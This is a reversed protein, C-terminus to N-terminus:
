GARALERKARFYSKSQGRGWRGQRRVTQERGVSLSSSGSRQESVTIFSGIRSNERLNMSGRSEEIRFQIKRKWREGPKREKRTSRTPLASEREGIGGGIFSNHAPRALTHLGVQPGNREM